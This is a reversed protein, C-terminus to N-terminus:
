LGRELRERLGVRVVSPVIRDVGGGKRQGLVAVLPRELRDDFPHVTPGGCVDDGASRAHGERVQPILAPEGLERLPGRGLVLLHSRLGDRESGAYIRHALRRFRPLLRLPSRPSVEGRRRFTRKSPSPEAASIVGIGTRTFRFTFAPFCAIRSTNGPRSRTLANRASNGSPRRSSTRRSQRISMTGSSMYMYM